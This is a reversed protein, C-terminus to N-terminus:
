YKTKRTKWYGPKRHPANIAMIHPEGRINEIYRIVYRFTETPGYFRWGPRACPDHPFDHSDNDIAIIGALQFIAAPSVVVTGKEFVAVCRCPFTVNTESKQTKEASPLIARKGSLISGASSSSDKWKKFTRM